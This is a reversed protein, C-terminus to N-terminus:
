EVVKVRYYIQPFVQGREDEFRILTGTGNYTEVPKWEKLDGTAEVVYSRGSESEFEFGFPSRTYSLIRVGVRPVAGDLKVLGEASGYTEGKEMTLVKAVRYEKSTGADWIRYSVREAEALNVNLTAYSKGNALVVEHQGRLEKGVFAGVVSGSAVAKGAVTVQAFVTASVTPYVMVPGWNPGGKKEIVGEPGMKAIDRGSGSESVEGVTWTGNETVKLWYGLGPVMTSLTNWFFPLSPDYSLTLNKIQVVTDGLSALESAPAEGSERPYGVLNWGKKVTISAGAPVMGEVELDVAESVKLWYGDKVNLGSLTNWFFPLSPDYSLTLNKIQVLKDKISALVTAPAADEPEVYFSVLNWGAKLSLSQVVTSKEVVVTRSVSEAANGAADSVDYKLTYSGATSADVTGTVEIKSTM